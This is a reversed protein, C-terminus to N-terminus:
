SLEREAGESMEDVNRPASPEVCRLFGPVEGITEAWRRLEAPLVRTDNPIPNRVWLRGFALFTEVDSGYRRHMGLAGQSMANRLVTLQDQVQPPIPTQAPIGTWLFAAQFLTISGDLACWARLRPMEGDGRSSRLKPCWWDWTMVLVSGLCIVAAAVIRWDIPIANVWRLWVSTNSIHSPIGFILGALAWISLGTAIIGAIPKWLRGALRTVYGM